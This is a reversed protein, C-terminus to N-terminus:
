KDEPIGSSHHPHNLINDWFHSMMLIWEKPWQAWGMAEILYPIAILFNNFHLKSDPIVTNEKQLNEWHPPAKLSPNNFPFQAIWSPHINSKIRKQEEKEVKIREKETEEELRKKEQQQQERQADDEATDAVVQADWQQCNIGHQKHWIATLLIAAQADTSGDEILPERLKTYDQSTYDPCATDNPNIIICPM